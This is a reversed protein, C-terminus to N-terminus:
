KDIRVVLSHPGPLQVRSKGDAAEADVQAIFVQTIPRARYVNFNLELIVGDGTLGQAKSFSLPLEFRGKRADHTASAPKAGAAEALAGLSNSELRLVGPDYRVAVPYDRLGQLGTANLRVKITDGVRANEPGLLAVDGATQSGAIGPAPSALEKVLSRAPAVPEPPPSGAPQSRTSEGASPASAAAPPAPVAAPPAPVAAPVPAASGAGGIAAQPAQGEETPNAQGSRGGRSPSATSAGVPSGGAANAAPKAGAGAAPAPTGAGGRFEGVPDLRLARERVNSETGSFVDRLSAEIIAPARIIRPTISLVIETKTRSSNNNGFIQGVAPIHGLGPVKNATNRDQDSILGGLVQTEGDRLRLSTQASRTGIQYSRGGQPDTFINAINSVELTLKIGVEQSNYITPEFELKLGVEQYQVSGTVVSGGTQIPTVSNVITPVRDGILIKAKEKHRARIRPSALLNADSDQLQLNLTASLGTATLDNRSLNKLAGLTAASSPTAVGFSQPLQLGINSARDRSIELVEVELMVEPEPLDSAAIIKAAVNVADTTDRVVITNTREDVSLEKLKLVSKLMGHLYKADANAIQFTRVQLDQYEKQKAATAPYVFMTSANLTRKELQNQLLILDVTDEVSADKVFITTKLDSRVDRDLIVNLGTTRSLAEFVMRLSADRFQMTVPKRMVSQANQQATKLQDIRAQQQAIAAAVRQAGEHAPNETLVPKLTARADDLQGEALEREAKAQMEGHRADMQLLALGRTAREFSPQVKLAKQYLATAEAVQGARRAEDARDVIDRAYVSIERLYDVRYEANTPELRSAEKLQAIGAERDGDAVMQMGNQHWRSGACGALLGILLIAQLARTRQPLPASPSSSM